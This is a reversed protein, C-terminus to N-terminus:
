QKRNSILDDAFNGAVFSMTDTFTGTVFVNNDADSTLGNGQYYNFSTSLGGGAQVWQIIGRSDYKAIFFDSYSNGIINISGFDAANQFTGTIIINDLNDTTIDYSVDYSKGGARVAWDPVGASSYKAIFIDNAGSSRLTTSGFTISLSFLGTIIINGSNDLAVSYAQDYDTGGARTAWIVKGNPDYKVIFIDSSGASALINSGFTITSDFYGTIITNGSNDVVLNTSGNFGSGSGDVAWVYEPSQAMSLKSIVIISFLILLFLINKNTRKNVIM